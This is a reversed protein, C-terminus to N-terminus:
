LNWGYLDSQRYSIDRVCFMKYWILISTAIHFLSPHGWRLWRVQHCIIAVGMYPTLPIVHQTTVSGTSCHEVYVTARYGISHCIGLHAIQPVKFGQLGCPLQFNEHKKTKKVNNFYITVVFNLRGVSRWIWIDQIIARSFIQAYMPPISNSVPQTSKSARPYKWFNLLGWIQRTQIIRHQVLSMAM